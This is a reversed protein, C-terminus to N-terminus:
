SDQEPVEWRGEKRLDKWKRRWYLFLKVSATPTLPFALMTCAKCNVTISWQGHQESVAKSEGKILDGHLYERDAQEPLLSGLTAQRLSSWSLNFSWSFLLPFFPKLFSDEREVEKTLSTNAKRTQKNLSHMDPCIHAPASFTNNKIFCTLHKKQKSCLTM